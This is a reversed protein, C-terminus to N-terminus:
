DNELFRKLIVVASMKDLIGKERRKSKKVGALILEQMAEKSSYAEDELVVPITPFVKKLRNIFSEVLPTADTDKDDLSLPYGVVFQSVNEAKVYNKLYAEIDKPHITDLPSVFIGSPDTVALGIRKTGYDFALIRGM